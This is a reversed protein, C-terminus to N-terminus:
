KHRAYIGHLENRQEELWSQAEEVSRFDARQKIVGNHSV